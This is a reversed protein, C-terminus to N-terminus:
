SRPLLLVLITAEAGSAHGTATAVGNNWFERWSLARSRSARPQVLTFTTPVAFFAAIFAAIISWSLLMHTSLTLCLVTIFGFFLAATAFHWAPPLEFTQNECSRPIPPAVLEWRVLLQAHGLRRTM